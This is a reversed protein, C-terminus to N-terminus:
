RLTAIIEHADLPRKIAGDRAAVDLVPQIRAVDLDAAFQSRVVKALVDDPIAVYKQLVAGTEAPHANVWPASKQIAQVFRRAAAPNNALWTKTTFWLNLYWESAIAAYPDGIPRTTPRLAVLAPESIFAADIRGQQMAPGMAPFPMEAYHVLAPDAGNKQLWSTMATQTIGRIEILGVTKGELDKATQVASTKPVILLAQPKKESFLAGAAIAVFPLGQEIANALSVPNALGVDLSGGAVAAAIAGSNPLTVLEIGVDAQKFFGAADAYGAQAFADTSMFAVRVPPAAQANARAAAAPMAAAGALLALARRRDLPTM